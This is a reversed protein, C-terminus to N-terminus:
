REREREKERKREREREKEIAKVRSKVRSKVRKRGVEDNKINERKACIKYKVLKIHIRKQECNLTEKLM